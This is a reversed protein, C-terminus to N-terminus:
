ITSLAPENSQSYAPSEAAPLGPPSPCPPLYPNCQSATASILAPGPIVQSSWRGAVAEQKLAHVHHGRPSAAACGAAGSFVKSSSQCPSDQM